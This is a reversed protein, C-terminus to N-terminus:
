GLQVLQKPRYWWPIYFNPQGVTLLLVSAVDTERASIDPTNLVADPGTLPEILLSQIFSHMFLHIFLNM